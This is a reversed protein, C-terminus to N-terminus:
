KCHHVVIYIIRSEEKKVHVTCFGATIGCDPDTTIIVPLLMLQHRPVFHKSLLIIPTQSCNGAKFTMQLHLFFTVTIQM